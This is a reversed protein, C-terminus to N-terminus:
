VGNRREKLARVFFLLSFILPSPTKGNEEGRIIIL